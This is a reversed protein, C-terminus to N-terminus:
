VMNSPPLEIAVKGRILLYKLECPLIGLNNQKHYYENISM